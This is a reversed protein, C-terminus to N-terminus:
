SHFGENCETGQEKEEKEWQELIKKSRYRHFIFGLFLILSLIAYIYKPSKLLFIWKFHSKLYADYKIQFDVFEELSAKYFVDEFNGESNINNLINKLISEGYFFELAEVAAASEGYALGVKDQTYSSINKLQVLPITRREWISKSIEVKHSLAFENSNRMAMGEKFWSPLVGYNPFRFMYIHNLEHIIIEEMRTISTNFIRNAKIIIRDPNRKAVAISWEPSHGKAKESFDKENSTIYVFFPRKSVQGFEQTINDTEKQILMTLEPINYINDGYIDLVCEGFTTPFTDAFILCFSIFFLFQFRFM